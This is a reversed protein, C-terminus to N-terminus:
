VMQSPHCHCFLFKKFIAEICVACRRVIREILIKLRRHKSVGIIALPIRNYHAYRPALKAKIAVFNDVNDIELQGWLHIAREARRITDIRRVVHVLKMPNRHKKGISGRINNLKKQVYTKFRCLVFPFAWPCSFLTFPHNERAMRKAQWRTWRIKQRM